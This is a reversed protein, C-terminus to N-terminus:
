KLKLSNFSSVSSESYGLLEHLLGRSGHYLIEVSLIDGQVHTDAVSCSQMQVSIGELELLNKSEKIQSTSLTKLKM